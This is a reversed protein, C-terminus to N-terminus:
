FFACTGKISDIDVHLPLRPCFPSVTAPGDQLSGLQIAQLARVADGTERGCIQITQSM